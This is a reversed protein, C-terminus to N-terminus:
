QLKRCEIRTNTVSVKQNFLANVNKWVPEEKERAITNEQNKM